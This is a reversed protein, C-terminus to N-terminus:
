VLSNQKECNTPLAVLTTIRYCLKDYDLAFLDNCCFMSLQVVVIGEQAAEQVHRDMHAQSAEPPQPLLAQVKLEFFPVGSFNLFIPESM